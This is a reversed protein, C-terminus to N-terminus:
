QEFRWLWFAYHLELTTKGLRSDLKWFRINYIPDRAFKFVEEQGPSLEFLPTITRAEVNIECPINAMNILSMREELKWNFFSISHPVNPEIM